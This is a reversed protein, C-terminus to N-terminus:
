TSGTDSLRLAANADNGGFGLAVGRVPSLATKGIFRVPSQRQYDPRGASM